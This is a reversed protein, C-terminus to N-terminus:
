CCQLASQQFIHPTDQINTAAAHIHAVLEMESEVRISYVLTKTYEWQFFALPTLDLFRAPCNKHGGWCLWRHGCTNTIVAHVPDAFTPPNEDAWVRSIQANHMGNWTFQAENTFLVCESFHPDKNVQQMFWRVFEFHPRYDDPRMVQVHVPHFPHLLQEILVTWELSHHVDLWSCFVLEESSSSSSASSSSTSDWSSDSSHLHHKVCYLKLFFMTPKKSPPNGKM